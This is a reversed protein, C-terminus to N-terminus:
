GYGLRRLAARAAEGEDWPYTHLRDGEAGIISREHGKGALLVTDGPRARSLATYVAQGRDPVRVFREGEAAFRAIRASGRTTM